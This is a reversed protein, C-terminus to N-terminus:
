AGCDGEKLGYGSRRIGATGAQRDQRENATRMETGSGGLVTCMYVCVCAVSVM